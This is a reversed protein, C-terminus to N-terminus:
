KAGVAPLRQLVFAGIKDAVDLANQCEAADPELLDGPYRYRWAMPSLEEAEDLLSGFDADIESAEEVLEALVHTKAFPRDHWTLFAKLSKEAAQQCHYVVVDRLPSKQAALIRAAELDRAAKQAWAAVEALKERQPM